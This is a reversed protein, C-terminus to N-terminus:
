HILKNIIISAIIIVFSIAGSIGAAYSYLERKFVMNDISSQKLTKVDNTLGNDGQAGYLSLEHKQIKPNIIGQCKVSDERVSQMASLVANAVINKIAEKDSKTLAM